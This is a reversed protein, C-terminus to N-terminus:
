WQPARPTSEWGLVRAILESRNGSGTKDLMSKIHDQVTSSTIHLQVAIQDLHNGDLLLGLVQVERPSIHFRDAAGTLSNREQFRDIRVGIFLGSPGSMPQTRVVLFPVPHSIGPENVSGDAWGTTLARVTEELVSPLREAIRTHLGTLAIRRRDEANWALVIQLDSDLVYFAGDPQRSATGKRQASSTLAADPEPHLRLASFRESAADLAFTLMGIESSTFPGMETTRLLTLIGFNARTDAFVLTIGSSFGDISGLTAAIRSGTATKQRQRRFEDTLAAQAEANPHSSLVLNLDGTPAVRAFTWRSAPVVDLITSLTAYAPDAKPLLNALSQEASVLFADGEGSPRAGSRAKELRATGLALGL